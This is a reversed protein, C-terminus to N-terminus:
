AINALCHQLIIVLGFLKAVLVKFDLYKGFEDNMSTLKPCEWEGIQHLKISAFCKM